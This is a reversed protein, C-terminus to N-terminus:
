NTISLSQYLVSLFVNDFVGNDSFLNDSTATLPITTKSNEFDIVGGIITDDYQNVYEFFLYYQEVNLFNFDTPLVLPWGWDSSYNSLPFTTAGVASVPQWTNLLSYSNSFKELAVIPTGAQVIYSLPSISSGLNIGFEDKTTRHKIDFNEKFKNAVGVLKFKNISGLDIFRKVKVPYTYNEENVDNYNMYESFSNLFTIECTDVDQTNSVFNANKEYTKIGIGEHDSDSNGLVGGFFDDFLVNKDLLIEQFTVDRLTSVPDFNENKKYIDFHNLPYVDFLNSKGSLVYSSVGDSFTGSAKITVGSLIDTSSAMPFIINGRFMGGSNQSSLTDNLSTIVYYPSTNDFSSVSIILNYQQIKDFTKVSFWESDKIKVVFPINTNYFKIPNINFSDVIVGEGDYGNSTISLHNADNRIVKASLSVGLNNIYNLTNGGFKYNLKDFFFNILINDSVTDDKFYVNKEASLGVFVSDIDRESCGIITNNSLKAYLKIPEEFVVKDIERFQYENISYNYIRDYLSYYNEMNSFKNNKINWYDYSGSSLVNYYINSESQYHPFYSKVKFPGDIKGCKFIIHTTYEFDDLSINFTLPIYDYVTIEKRFTSIQANNNCDFVVMDVYYKGPYTYSKTASFSRSITGDGFNWLIRHGNDSTQTAEPIFLLPIPIAYSSLTDVGSYGIIKFNLYSNSM